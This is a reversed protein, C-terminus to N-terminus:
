AKYGEIETIFEGQTEIIHKVDTMIIQAKLADSNVQVSQGPQMDFRLLSKFKWGTETPEPVGILGSTADLIITESVISINSGVTHLTEDTIVPRLNFDRCLEAYYDMALGNLARAKSISGSMSSLDINGKKLPNIKNDTSTTLAKILENAITQYPTGAAFTKEIKANRTTKASDRCELKTHWDVGERVSTAIDVQARFVRGNLESAEYGAYLEITVGSKTFFDRTSKKLNYITIESENPEKGVTKHISASFDNQTEYIEGTIDFAKINWVRNRLKSM